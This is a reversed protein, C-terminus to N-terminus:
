YKSIQGMLFGFVLLLLTDVVSVILGVKENLLLIIGFGTIFTIFLGKLSSNKNSNLYTILFGSGSWQFLKAVAPMVGFSYINTFFAILGIVLGILIITLKTNM